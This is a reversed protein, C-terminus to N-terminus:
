VNTNQYRKTQQAALEQRSIYLSKAKNLEYGAPITTPEAGDFLFPGHKKDPVDLFSHHINNQSFATMNEKMIDKAHHTLYNRYDENTKIKMKKQFLSEFMGNPIYNSVFRGDEM